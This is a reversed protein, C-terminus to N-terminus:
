TRATTRLHAPAIGHVQKFVRSFHLADEYGLSAAVDKVLRDSSILTQAAVNMKQRLLYQYPTLGQYRAFLRFLRSRTVRTQRLWEDLTHFRAPNEDILTKCRLFEERAEDFAPAGRLSAAELKLMLRAFLNLCIEGVKPGHDSGERILADFIERFEAHIKLSLPRACLNVPHTFAGLANRGTLSVFYKTMPRGTGRVSVGRGPGYAFFTGPTLPRRPNRGLAIEGGGEAVYELTPFPYTTRQVRYDPACHERGGFAVGLPGHRRETLDIFFYDGTVKEALLARRESASQAPNTVHIPRV